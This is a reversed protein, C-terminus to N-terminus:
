PQRGAVQYKWPTRAVKLKKPGFDAVNTSGYLSRLPKLARKFMEISSTPTGDPKRYHAEAHRWYAALLEAVTMTSAASDSMRPADDGYTLYEAIALEYARKTEPTGWTGLYRRTGNITIYGRGPTGKAKHRCLKPVRPSPSTSPM